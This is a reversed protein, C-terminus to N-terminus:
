NRSSNALSRVYDDICHFALERGIVTLGEKSAYNVPFISPM